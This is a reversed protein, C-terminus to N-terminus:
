STTASGGATWTPRTSAWRPSTSGPRAAGLGAPSAPPCSRACGGPRGSGRRRPSRSWSPGVGIWVGAWDPPGGTSPSRSAGPARAPTRGSRCGCRRRAPRRPVDLPVPVYAQRGSEVRGSDYGDAVIRYAHQVSAGDPLWWSLLPRDGTGFPDGGGAEVRVRRPAPDTVRAATCSGTSGVPCARPWTPTSSATSSSSCWGRPPTAATRGPTTPAASSSSTAPAAPDGRLRRPGPHDRGGARDRLRDLRHPAGAVASRARRPPRARFENIRIKTGRPPPPVALTRETPEGAEVATIRAPAGETNWIEHFSVGDAPLDRSVPVPGDSVVVSVGDPTHGTVVRRPM